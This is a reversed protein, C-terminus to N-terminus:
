TLDTTTPTGIQPHTSKNLDTHVPHRTMAINTADRISSVRAEHSKDRIYLIHVRTCM